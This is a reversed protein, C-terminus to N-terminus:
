ISESGLPPPPPPAHGQAGASDAEPVCYSELLPNMMAQGNQFKQNKYTCSFSNRSIVRVHCFWEHQQIHGQRDRLLWSEDGLPVDQLLGSQKINYSRGFSILLDFWGKPHCFSTM